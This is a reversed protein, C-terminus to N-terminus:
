QDRYDPRGVPGRCSGDVSAQRSDRDGGCGFVCHLKGDTHARLARLAQSLADPTHAYDVVLQLEADNDVYEMRGEVGKLDPIADLAQALPMGNLCAASIAAMLNALNFDGAMPSLIRGEGWPTHLSAELGGRHYKIDSVRVDAAGSEIAYEIVETGPAVAARMVRAYSDDANIVAHQLGDVSFLRAKAAAYSDMDGHYDLHDHSLNTFLATNFPLGGVRGQVLSHSSVELVAAAVDDAAWDALQRHLSVADPTTNAANVTDDGLTAGLTGIVGCSGFRARLFQALVRSTTTKGNTGTIGVTTMREGPQGFFRSAILGVQDALDCVEVVPLQRAAERQAASLGAEAVVACAGADAAVAIYDRGDHQDGPLAIFLDGPQLRRSDLQIGYVPLAVADAIGLLLRFLPVAHGPTTPLAMM